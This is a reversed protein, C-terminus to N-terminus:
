LIGQIETEIEESLLAEYPQNGVTAEPQQDPDIPPFLIQESRRMEEVTPPGKDESAVPMNCWDRSNGIPHAYNKMKGKKFWNVDHESCHYQPDTPADQVIGAMEEAPTASYGALVVVWSLLQKFARSEARTQAMGALQNITQGAKGQESAFCFSDAGGRRTGEVDVVYARAKVGMIVDGDKLFEVVESYCTYGYGKGITQWAEVQLHESEGFKRSLGQSKVIHQLTAAKQHAAKLGAEFEAPSVAEERVAIEQNM